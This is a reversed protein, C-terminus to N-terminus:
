ETQTKSNKIKKDEKSQENMEKLTGALSKFRLTFFMGFLKWISYHKKIGHLACIHGYISDIEFGYCLVLVSVSIIMPDFGYYEGLAKGLLSGLTIYCFYDMMKNLTRRCASSRRIKKKKNRSESIGFWFDSIVLAIGLIIMWRLDFLVQAYESVFSTILNSNNEEIEIGIGVAVLGLSLLPHSNQIDIM